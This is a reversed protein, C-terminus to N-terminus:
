RIDSEEQGEKREMELPMQTLPGETPAMMVGRSM